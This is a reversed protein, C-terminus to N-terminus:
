LLYLKLKVDDGFFCDGIVLFESEYIDEPTANYFTKLDGKLISYRTTFRYWDECGDIRLAKTKVPIKYAAFIIISFSLIVIVATLFKKDTTKM